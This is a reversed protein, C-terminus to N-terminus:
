HSTVFLHRTIQVLDTDKLRTSILQKANRVINETCLYRSILTFYKSIRILKGMRVKADHEFTERKVAEEKEKVEGRLQEIQHFMLKFKRRM